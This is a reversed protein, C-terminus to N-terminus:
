HVFYVIEIIFHWFIEDRHLVASRSRFFCKNQQRKLKIQTLINKEFDSLQRKTYPDKQVNYFQNITGFQIINLSNLRCKILILNLFDFEDYATSYLM